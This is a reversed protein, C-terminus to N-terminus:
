MRLSSLWWVAVGAGLGQLLMQGLSGVVYWFDCSLFLYWSTCILITRSTQLSLPIFFFRPSRPLDLNPSEVGLLRNTLSMM